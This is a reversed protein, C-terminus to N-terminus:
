APRNSVEAADRGEVIAAVKEGWAILAARKADGWSHRQYIDVIGARSGAIHNLVGETVELRVGMKQLGTACTRRLDHLVWGTVGAARDLAAKAKSFGNLPGTLGPFVLEPEGDDDNRDFRPAAHLIAQAQKSLPVVHMANNKAKAAPITWTSLDDSIEDWTMSAVEERRQGTLVLMRVIANYSGPGNTAM